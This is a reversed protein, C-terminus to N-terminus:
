RDSETCRRSNGRSINLILNNSLVIM